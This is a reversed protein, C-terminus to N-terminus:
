LTFISVRDPNVQPKYRPRSCNTDNNKSVTVNVPRKYALDLFNINSKFLLTPYQPIFLPIDLSINLFLSHSILHSISSYLTPYRPIFLPINLFLSHHQPTFSVICTIFLLFILQFYWHLPPKFSALKLFSLGNYNLYPFCISTPNHQYNM